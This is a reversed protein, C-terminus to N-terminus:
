SKEIATVAFTVGGCRSVLEPKPRGTVTVRQGDRLEQTGPGTLSWRGSDTQLIRCTPAIGEILAGTLQTM